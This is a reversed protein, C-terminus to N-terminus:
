SAYQCVSIVFLEPFEFFSHCLKDATIPFFLLDIACSPSVASSNRPLKSCFTESTLDEVKPHPTGVYLRNLPSRKCSNVSTSSPLTLLRISLAGFLVQERSGAGVQSM